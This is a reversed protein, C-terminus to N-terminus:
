YRKRLYWYSGVYLLLMVSVAGAAAVSLEDKGISKLFISGFGAIGVFLRMAWNGAKEALFRNREDGNEMDVKERYAENTQYRTRQVTQVVGVAIFGAGLGSGYQDVIGVAYCINLIIGLVIWGISLLTKGYKKM